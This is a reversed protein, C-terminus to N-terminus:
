DVELADYEWGKSSFKIGEACVEMVGVLFRLFEGAERQFTPINRQAWLQSGRMGFMPSDYGLLKIVKERDPRERM